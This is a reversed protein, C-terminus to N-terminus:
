RWIGTDACAESPSFRVHMQMARVLNYPALAKSEFRNKLTSEEWAYLSRLFNSSVELLHM